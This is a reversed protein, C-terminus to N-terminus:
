QINLLEKDLETKNEAIYETLLDLVNEEKLANQYFSDSNKYYSIEEETHKYSANYLQNTKVLVEILYKSQILKLGIIIDDIESHPYKYIYQKLGARKVDISFEWVKRLYFINLKESDSEIKMKEIPVARINNFTEQGIFTEVTVKLSDNRNLVLEDAIVIDSCNDLLINGNYPTDTPTDYYAELRIIKWNETPKLFFEYKKWFAHDIVPSNFLIEGTECEHKEGWIRLRIPTTFKVDKDTRRDQSIMQDSKALYISFAYTKGKQLPSSLVQYVSEWSDISRTVMGLYTGGEVPLLWVNFHGPQVDPSNLNPDGCSEWGSPSKCCRALGEFSPNELEIVDQSYVFTFNFAFLFLLKFLAKM